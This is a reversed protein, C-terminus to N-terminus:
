AAIEGTIGEVAGMAENKAKIMFVAEPIDGWRHSGMLKNQHCFIHAIRQDLQKVADGNPNAYYDLLAQKHEKRV